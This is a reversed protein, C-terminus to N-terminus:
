RRQFEPAGIALGVLAAFSLPAPREGNPMAMSAADPGPAGDLRALPNLGTLLIARTEPSAEGHLVLAIVSDVRAEPAASPGPSAGSPSHALASTFPEAAISSENSVPM